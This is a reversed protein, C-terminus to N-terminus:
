NIEKYFDYDREKLREILINRDNITEIYDNNLDARHEIAKLFSESYDNIKFGRIEKAEYYLAQYRKYLYGLKNYFFKVHGKGLTFILPIGNMNLNNTNLIHNPIRKIERLEAILHKTSLEAPLIACNIRTM